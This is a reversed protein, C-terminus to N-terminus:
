VRGTMKKNIVLYKKDVQQPRDTYTSTNYKDAPKKM